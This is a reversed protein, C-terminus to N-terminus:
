QLKICYLLQNHDGLIWVPSPPVSSFACENGLQNAYRYYDLRENPVNQTRIEM